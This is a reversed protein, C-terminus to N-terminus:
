PALTGPMAPTPGPIEEATVSDDPTSAGPGWAVFLPDRGVLRWDNTKSERARAVTVEVMNGLRRAAASAEGLEALVAVVRGGPRLRRLVTDLLDAGPASLFVRDPPPLDDFDVARPAAVVHVSAGLSAANASIREGGEPSGQVALVSLGPRVLACEVAVAGSDSGVDWLVGSSPLALKGLVVSRIESKASPGPRHVFASDPLGWALVPASRPAGAAPPPWSGGQAPAWGVLPLSGPGLIVVVSGPDYHGEALSAATTELVMEESSGLRSCVAVLDMAAGADLLAQGIAEPPVDPAALFAVKPATRLLGALEEPRRGHAPVVLADEWPLGLRAFAVAVASPAPLVRLCRRGVTAALPGLVGFFGPDGETLVCIRGLSGDVARRVAQAADVPDDGVEVWEPPRRGIRVPPRDAWTQWLWLCRRSGIVVAADTLASVAAPALHDDAMGIVTVEPGAPESPM